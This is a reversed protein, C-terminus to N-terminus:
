SVALRSGAVSPARRGEVLVGVTLVGAWLLAAPRLGNVYHTTIGIALLVDPLLQIAFSAVMWPWWARVSAFLWPYAVLPTLGVWYYNWALPTFLLIVVAALAPWYSASAWRKLWVLLACAVLYGLVAAVYSDLSSVVSLSPRTEVYNGPIADRLWVLLANIGGVWPLAALTVLVACAATNSADRWVGKSHPLALVLPFYWPKLAVLVGLVIVAATRLRHLELTLVGSAVLAAFASGQVWGLDALTASTSLIMIPPIARFTWQSRRPAQFTMLLTLCGIGTLVALRAAYEPDPQMIPLSRFIRVVALTLPTHAVWDNARESTIDRSLNGLQDYPMTGSRIAEVALLDRGFDSITVPAGDRAIAILLPIRYAVLILVTVLLAALWPNWARAATLLRDTHM